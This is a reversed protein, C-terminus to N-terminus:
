NLHGTKRLHLEGIIILSKLYDEFRPMETKNLLNLTPIFVEFFVGHPSFNPDSIRERYKPPAKIM